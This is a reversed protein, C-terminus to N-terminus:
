FFTEMARRQSADYLAQGTDCSCSHNAWVVNLWLLALHIHLLFKISQNGPLFIIIKGNNDSAM